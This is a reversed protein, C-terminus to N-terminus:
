GIGIYFGLGYILVINVTSQHLHVDDDQLLNFISTDVFGVLTPFINGIKSIEM